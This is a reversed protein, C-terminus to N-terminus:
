KRKERKKREAEQRSRTTGAAYLGNARGYGIPRTEREVAEFRALEATTHDLEYLTQTQVGTNCVLPLVVSTQTQRALSSLSSLTASHLDPEPQKNEFVFDATRRVFTNDGGPESSFSLTDDFDTSLLWIQMTSQLLFHGGYRGM